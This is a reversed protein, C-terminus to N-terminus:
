IDYAIANRVSEWMGTSWEALFKKGKINQTYKGKGVIWHINVNRFYNEEEKKNDIIKVINEM